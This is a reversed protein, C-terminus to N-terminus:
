GQPDRPNSLVERLVQLLKDASYPKTLFANVGLARLEEFKADRALGSSAILKLEPAM